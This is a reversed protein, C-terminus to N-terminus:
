AQHYLVCTTPTLRFLAADAGVRGPIRSLAFENRIRNGVWSSSIYYGVFTRGFRRGPLGGRPASGGSARRRLPPSPICVTGRCIPRRRGTRSRFPWSTRRRRRLGPGAGRERRTVVPRVVMAGEAREAEGKENLRSGHGNGGVILPSAESGRLVQRGVFRRGERKESGGYSLGRKETGQGDTGAPVPACTLVATIMNQAKDVSPTGISVTESTRIFSAAGTAGAFRVGDGISWTHFKKMETLSAMKVSIM